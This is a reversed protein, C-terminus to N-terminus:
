HHIALGHRQERRPVRAFRGWAGFRAAAFPFFPVPAVVTSTAAGTAVLHRLRNEVFVGHNPRAANPFLTSFALLRIPIVPADRPASMRLAALSQEGDAM